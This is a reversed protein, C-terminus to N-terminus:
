KDFYIDADEILYNAFLYVKAGAERLARARGASQELYLNIKEQQIKTLEEDDFLWIKKIRNATEVKVWGRKPKETAEPHIDFYLDEYVDPAEDFKGAVIVIQGKLLDLGANNALHLKTGNYEPIKFGHSEWLPIADKFSLVFAREIEEPPIKKKVYKILSELKENGRGRAGSPATYQIIEGKNKALPFQYISIKETDYLKKLRTSQPTASLFKIPTDNELAESILTSKTTFRIAKNGKLLTIKPSDAYSQILKAVGAMPKQSALYKSWDFDKLMATQLPKIDITEGREKDEISDILKIVDPRYEEKICPILGALGVTDLIVVDLLANEINEDIIICDAPCTRLHAICQHSCVFVGKAETNLMEQIAKYREDQRTAAPFGMEMLLMDTQTYKGRPVIKIVDISETKPKDPHAERYAQIFREEFEQINTYRPASYIIKKQTLDQGLLWHIVRHTKGCAPQAKIYVIGGDDLLRPMERDLMSDLEDVTIKNLTNYVKREGRKFYDAVTIPEDEDVRVIGIAHLTTNLFMRRIQDEDCTHDKYVEEHQHYYELVKSVISLNKDAYRLYKLNTFLTLRQNYNLYEGEVWRDWLWCVTQLEDWWEFSATIYFPEIEANEDAFFHNECGKVAKKIKDMKQNNKMKECVGVWGLVSLPIPKNNLVKVGSKTGFWLRSADKTSLDPKYKAFQELLYNYITEYQNHTIEEALVWLIRCNHGPKKGQSYSYYWASPSIGMSEAYEIITQPEDPCSDFDLAIIQASKVNKKKFSDTDDDYLGARWARGNGILEAIEAVTDVEAFVYNAPKQLGAIIKGDTPKTDYMARSHILRIM